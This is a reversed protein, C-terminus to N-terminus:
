NFSSRFALPSQNTKTKFLKSFSQSHEFGLLYAIESVSLSTTSLQEKAKEILQEHIHQQATMGTLTKLLGSLYDPSAHLQGALYGVSLLGKRRVDAGDFYDTLLDKVREL